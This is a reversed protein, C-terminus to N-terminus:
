FDSLGAGLTTLEAPVAVRGEYGPFGGFRFCLRLYDVFFLRHRENLLEGDARPDPVAMEYPDGGSTNAKHLDDPAITIASPGEDDEDDYEIVGEDFGYVVLPDPAVTNGKPDLIPHHGILNVEGVVEYFARLSLPMAGVQKEFDAIEKRVNSPGTLHTPRGGDSDPDTTFTYNMASLREVLTRVNAEVRHMTEYAVALADAAHPDGRVEAGLAVLDAWVQRHDGALYRDLFPLTGGAHARLQELRAAHDTPLAANLISGPKARKAKAAPKGIKSQVFARFTPDFGKLDRPPVNEPELIWKEPVAKGNWAYVLWGDRYAAAPGDGRELLKQDNVHLEAPRDSMIAANAFPWWMGSSRAVEWAAAMIAPPERDGVTHEDHAMFSFSYEGFFSQGILQDTTPCHIASRLAGLNSGWFRQEARQLEDEVAYREMAAGVDDDLDYRAEFLRVKFMRAPDPPFTLNEGLPKGAAALVQNWDALGLREGLAARAKDFGDRAGRSMGPTALKQGWLFNHPAALLAVAWSAAFPSDYWLFHRPEPFGAAAYLRRVSAEARPRDAPETSHLQALWNARIDSAPKM